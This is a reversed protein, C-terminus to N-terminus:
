TKTKFITYLFLRNQDMSHRMTKLFTKPIMKKVFIKHNMEKTLAIRNNIFVRVWDKCLNISFRM